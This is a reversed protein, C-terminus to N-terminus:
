QPLSQLPVALSVPSECHVSDSVGSVNIGSCTRLSGGFFIVVKILSLGTLCFKASVLM